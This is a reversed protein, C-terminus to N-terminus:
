PSWHVKTWIAIAGCMNTPMSLENPVAMADPYVEVAALDEPHLDRLIAQDRHYVGDIWLLAACPRGAPDRLNVGVDGGSLLLVETRPFERLLADIAPRKAVETSDMAYGWGIRRREQYLRIQNAAIRSVTATTIVSDLVSLRPLYISTVAASNARFEITTDLPAFGIHRVSLRHAGVPVPAIRFAGDTKTQVSLGLDSLAVTAGALGDHSSDAFVGGAFMGRCLASHASSSDPLARERMSCNSSVIEAANAVRITLPSSSDAVVISSRNVAGISDLSATRAEISYRGPAVSRFMFLGNTDASTTLGTGVLTLRAGVVPANKTDVVIGTVPAWHQSWLTDSGRMVLSLSGGTRKLFQVTPYMDAGVIEVQVEPMQISWRSIVWAGNDLRAFDIKGSANESQARPINVFGFDITRLEASARDLWLTGRIEAVRRRNDIPEFALGLLGPDPSAALRLCHDAAFEPSLLTTIDPAHYTIVASKEYVVYGARHLSDPSAATWPRIGADSRAGSSQGRVIQTRADIEQEYSVSAATLTTQDITVSTAELAARAQEWVAFTAAASDRALGCTANSAVRITDLAFAASALVLRTQRTEASALRFPASTQPRFGIRLTHLRYTGPHPAVIRYEGRAGSITRAIASSTSDLLQIVVGPVPVGGADVVSGTVTQAAAVSPLSLLAVYTWRIRM